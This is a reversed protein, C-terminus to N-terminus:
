EFRSIAQLLDDVTELVTDPYIAAAVTAPDPLDFGIQNLRPWNFAKLSRNCRVCFEAIRSRTGILYNIDGATIFTTGMNVDRGVLTIPM